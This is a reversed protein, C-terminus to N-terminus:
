CEPSQIRRDSNFDRYFRIKKKKSKMRVFSSSIRWLMYFIFDYKVMYDKCALAYNPFYRFSVTLSLM